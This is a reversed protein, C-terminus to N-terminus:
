NRIKDNNRIKKGLSRWFKEQREREFISEAGKGGPPGAEYTYSGNPHIM